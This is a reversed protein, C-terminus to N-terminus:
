ELLLIIILAVQSEGLRSLSDNCPFLCSWPISWLFLDGKKINEKVSIVGIFTRLIDWSIL